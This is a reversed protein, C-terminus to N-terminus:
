DVDDLNTYCDPLTNVFIKIVLFILVYAQRQLKKYLQSTSALILDLNYNNHLEPEKTLNNKKGCPKVLNKDFSYAQFKTFNNLLKSWAFM